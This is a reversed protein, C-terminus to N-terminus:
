DTGLRPDCFRAHRVMGSAPHRLLHCLRHGRRRREHRRGGSQSTRGRFLIGLWWLSLLDHRQLVPATFVVSGLLVLAVVVALCIWHLWFAQFFIWGPWAHEHSATIVGFFFYFVVLALGCALWCGVFKGAILEGRSVPKALLPFITRSEREAPIQRAATTIAIVLSSIWILLLCIEKLFRVIDTTTSFVADLRAGAHDAGDHRVARLFGQAPVIGQDGRGALALVNNMDPSAAQYGIIKLFIHELIANTNNVLDDVSGEVRLRGEHLIAVRDCVTEVEGLEHSSFFVTKGQEKLRQIIQRVKMRGLPDLGSTPEDLILLDPDNILAQALGVRQQMGKSYTKILRKRAAELEVLKLVADIRREREAARSASFARM